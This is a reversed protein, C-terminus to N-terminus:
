KLKKRMVLKPEIEYYVTFGLKEYIKAPGMYDYETDMFARNPYAEVFDFGEQAADECVSKLLSEAIGNRRMEPAIVFCFVSKVKINPSSEEKNTSNLYMKGCQCEM